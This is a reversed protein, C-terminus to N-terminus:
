TFVATSSAANLGISRYALWGRFIFPATTVSPVYNQTASTALVPTTATLAHRVTIILTGATGTTITGGVTLEYVKGARPEFAPIPTYFTPILAVETTLASTAFDANIPESLVDSFYQRSM